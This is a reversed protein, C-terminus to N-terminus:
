YLYFRILSTPPQRSLNTSSVHIQTTWIHHDKHSTLTPSQHYRPTVPEQSQFRFFASFLFYIGISLLAIQATDQPLCTTGRPTWSLILYISFSILSLPKTM